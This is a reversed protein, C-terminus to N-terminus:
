KYNLDACDGYYFGNAVKCKYSVKFNYDGTNSLISRYGNYNYLVDVLGDGNIDVFNIYNTNDKGTMAGLISYTFDTARLKISNPWAKYSFDDFISEPTFTTSQSTIGSLPNSLKYVISGANTAKYCIKQGNDSSNNFTLPSYAEFVLGTGCLDGRTLSMELTGTSTIASLQKFSTLSIDPNNITIVPIVTSTQPKLLPYESYISAIDTDSISSRFIRFSALKGIFKTTENQTWSGYWIWTYIMGKGLSISRWFSSINSRYLTNFIGDIYVSLTGYDDKRLVINHYKEDKLISCDFSGTGEEFNCKYDSTLWLGMDSPLGSVRKSSFIIQPTTATFVPMWVTSGGPSPNICGGYWPVTWIYTWCYSGTNSPNTRGSNTTQVWFSVAFGTTADAQWGTLGGIQSTGSFSAYSIAGSGNYWFSANYNNVANANGSTDVLSWSNFMYEVALNSRPIVGDASVTNLFANNVLIAGLVFFSIFRRFQTM